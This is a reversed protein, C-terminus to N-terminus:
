TLSMGIENATERAARQLEDAREADRPLGRERLMRAYDHQTRAVWSKAHIQENMALAIGFSREANEWRELTTALLGLYRAVSGTSIEPYSVAVRHGWPQLLRFLTSAKQSDGLLTAAEALLTLSVLWEEDFPIRGFDATALEDLM